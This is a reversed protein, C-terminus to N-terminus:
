DDFPRSNRGIEDFVAQILDSASGHDYVRADELVIGMIQGLM